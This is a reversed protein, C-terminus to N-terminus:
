HRIRMTESLDVIFSSVFEIQTGSGFDFDTNNRITNNNAEKWIQKPTLDAWKLRPIAQKKLETIRDKCTSPDFTIANAPDDEPRCIHKIFAKKETWNYM